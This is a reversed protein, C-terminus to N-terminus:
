GVPSCSAGRGPCRGSPALFIMRVGKGDWGSVHVEIGFFTTTVAGYFVRHPASPGPARAEPESEHRSPATAFRADLLRRVWRNSVPAVSSSTGARRRTAWGKRWCLTPQRHDFSDITVTHTFTVLCDALRATLRKCRACHM